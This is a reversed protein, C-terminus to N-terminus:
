RFFYDTIGRAIYNILAVMALTFLLAGAIVQLM